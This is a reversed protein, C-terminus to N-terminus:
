YVLMHGLDMWLVLTPDLDVWSVLMPGLDIGSLLMPGLDMWSVLTPGLDVWSVHNIQLVADEGMAQGQDWPHPCSDWSLSRLSM